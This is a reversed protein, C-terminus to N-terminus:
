FDETTPICIQKIDERIPTKLPHVKIEYLKPWLKGTVFIRGGDRDWAIGNLVDIDKAGSALLGERLNHLLIWGLVTGDKPSIRAICDTMWVNAWVEGNIYELENLQPVQHGQYKVIQKRTVKLTQPDIQYLASTGDSGYLVKGDTALGWGDEMEHTFAVFNSFNYRDYIYGTNQRWTVQFLRDDLLTLGEGFDSYHMSQITHVEGTRLAVKRVSSHGNLGTSEFLTDNESYLLGQTFANPDHPFVNVVEVVYLQVPLPPSSSSRFARDKNSSFSLLAVLSVVVVVLLSLSIKRCNFLSSSPSSSVMQPQQPNPIQYKKTSKKRMTTGGPGPM